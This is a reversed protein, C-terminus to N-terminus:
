GLPNLLDKLATPGDGPAEETAKAILRKVEAPSRAKNVQEVFDEARKERDDRLLLAYTEACRRALERKGDLAKASM